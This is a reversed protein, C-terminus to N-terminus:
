GPAPMSLFLLAEAEAIATLTQKTMRNAISGTAADEFGATDILRLALGEYEFGQALSARFNIRDAIGLPAAAQSQDESM